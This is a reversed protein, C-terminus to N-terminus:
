AQDMVVSDGTHASPAHQAADYEIPHTTDVHTTSVRGDCAVTGKHMGRIVDRTFWIDQGTDAVVGKGVGGKGEYTRWFCPGEYDDYWKRVKRVDILIIGTGAKEVEYVEGPRWPYVNVPITKNMRSAMAEIIPHASVCEGLKAGFQARAGSPMSQMQADVTESVVQEIAERVQEVPVADGPIRLPVAAVVATADSIELAQVLPALVGEPNTGYVDSDQMLLLDYGQKVALDLANNRLWNLDCKHEGRFDHEHGNEHAWRDDRLIQPMLAVNVQLNYAPVYHLIKM